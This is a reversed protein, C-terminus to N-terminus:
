RGLAAQVLWAPGADGAVAEPHWQVALVPHGPLELAEVTGDPSRGTVLLDAGLRAVAQHHLSNVRVSPGYVHAALSGPSLCVEHALTHRDCGFRPHDDGAGAPLDPEITGGLAVNLLQLGRCIALVPLEADLARRLLALEWADRAPETAVGWGPPGGWEAPDIDAGGTLVLGDLRGVVERPDSERALHVPVAGAVAVAAPYDAIGVDVEADAYAPPLRGGLSAAPWRRTSLGILPAGRM